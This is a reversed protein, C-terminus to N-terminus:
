RVGHRQGERQDMALRGVQRSDLPNNPMTKVVLEQAGWERAYEIGICQDVDPCPRQDPCARSVSYEKKRESVKVLPSRPPLGCSLLDYSKVTRVGFELELEPRHRYREWYEPRDTSRTTWLASEAESTQPLDRAVGWRIGKSTFRTTEHVKFQIFIAYGGAM